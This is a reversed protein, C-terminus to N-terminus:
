ALRKRLLLETRDDKVLGDLTATLAFGHREYLRRAATNTETVAIWLNRDGNRRAEAEAWALIRGGLGRGHLQPAVALMHIYPGRMWNLRVVLTGALAGDVHLAFRPAAPEIAAFFAILQAETFPYSLWPEMAACMAGITTAEDRTMLRLEADTGLEYRAALFPADTTVAAM